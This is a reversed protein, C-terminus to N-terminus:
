VGLGRLLLLRGNEGEGEGKKWGSLFLKISSEGGLECPSDIRGSGGGEAESLGTGALDVKGVRVRKGEGNKYKRKEGHECRTGGRVKQDRIEGTKDGILTGRARPYLCFM